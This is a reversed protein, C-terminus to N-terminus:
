ENRNRVAVGGSSTATLTKAQTLEPRDSHTGNNCNKLLQGYYTKAKEAQNVVAAARAAGYLGNFRNPDVKLSKEYEALADDPRDMLLFMDALMERAPLSTERKGLTDQRDAVKRILRLADDNKHDAFAAWARAENGDTDMYEAYYAETTKKTAEVMSDYQEVAKRANQADGLHAYGIAHAWYVMAQNYPKSALSPQLAIVDKWQRMEIFYTAPFAARAMDMYGHMLDDSNTSPMSAVQDVIAKAKADEGIQLYAYELFDMAHLDHGAGEMHHASAKQTAAESALNSDIDEQWLGLRAFIHSPMHVAHPSAPAIQAYRRAAALALSAMQPSDCSHILYHAAGPHDPQEDFLKQLIAIAKKEAAFTTDRPPASALLSLAYFAAAEHDNPYQRYVKEMSNSYVTARQPFDVKDYDRYLAAVAAIYDRERQTKADTTQAQQVFEWGKKMTADKPRDWLQHWLSLAQGWYAMACKPDKAAVEAFQKQAEEYWFSHMLAVGREFPKQVDAACSTPFSVTGLRENPDYAHQHDQGAITRHSSLVAIAALLAVRTKM